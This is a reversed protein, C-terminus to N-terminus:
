QPNTGLGSGGNIASLYLVGRVLRITFGFDVTSFTFIQVTPGVSLTVSSSLISVIKCNLPLDAHM